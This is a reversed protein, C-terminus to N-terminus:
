APKVMSSNTANHAERAEALSAIAPRRTHHTQMMDLMERALRVAAEPAVVTAETGFAFAWRVGEGLDRVRLTVHLSGDPQETVTQAEQWTRSRVAAGIQPSIAVIMEIDDEGSFWGVARDTLLEAPVPRAQFTGMRRFPGDIADLAFNRWGRRGIDYGVLYYRGDRVVVHYCEVTRLSRKRNAATYTFEIRAQDKAVGKLTDFVGAIPTGAAPRPVRVHLFGRSADSTEDGVARTIEREVAGGFAVAIRRLTEASEITASRLWDMRVTRSELHIRGGTLPSILMGREDGIERLQRLDRQFTRISRPFRAEYERREFSGSMNLRLFMWMLRAVHESLRDCDRATKDKGPPISRM